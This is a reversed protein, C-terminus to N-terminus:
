IDHKKQSKVRHISVNLEFGILLSISNLYIWVLVIPFSGLIGYLKNYSNFNSLYVTIFYTFLICFFTALWAGPSLYQRRISSPITVFLITAIYIFVFLFTLVWKLFSLVLASADSIQLKALLLYINVDSYVLFSTSFVLVFVAFVTLGLAILRKHINSRSDEIAVSEHFSKMLAYMGNSSFYMALLFGVSLLGTKKSHVTDIITKELLPYLEAPIFSQIGIMLQQHFDPIPIYPILTIFFILGPFLAMFFRFSISAARDSLSSEWLGKFYFFLVDGLPM